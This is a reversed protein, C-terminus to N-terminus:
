PGTLEQVTLGLAEALMELEHEAPQRQGNEWHRVRAYTVGVQLALQLLSLDAATRYAKLRASFEAESSLTCVPCLHGRDIVRGCRDCNTLGRTLTHQATDVSIGLRLAIQQASLGQDALEL